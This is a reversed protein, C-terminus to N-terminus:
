RIRMAWSSYASVWNLNRSDGEDSGATSWRLSHVLLIEFLVQLIQHMPTMARFLV